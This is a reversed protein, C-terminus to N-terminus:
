EPLREDPSWGGVVPLREGERDGADGHRLRRLRWAVLGAVVPSGYLIVGGIIALVHGGTVSIPDIGDCESGSGLCLQTSLLAGVMLIGFGVTAMGALVLLPVVWRTARSLPPRGPATMEEDDTRAPRM